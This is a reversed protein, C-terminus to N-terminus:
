GGENCPAQQSWPRTGDSTELKGIGGDRGADCPVSVLCPYWAHRHRHSFPLVRNRYKSGAHTTVGAGVLGKGWKPEHLGGILDIVRTRAPSREWPQLHHQGLWEIRTLALSSFVEVDCFCELDGVAPLAPALAFSNFAASRGKCLSSGSADSRPSAPPDSFTEDLGQLCLTGQQAAPLSSSARSFRCNGTSRAPQNQRTEAAM